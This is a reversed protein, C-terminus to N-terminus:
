PAAIIRPLEDALLRPAFGFDRRIRTTDIRPFLVAPADPIVSVRSATLRAILECVEANTLSIGSAVNYIRERGDLAIRVLLDAVDEVHIYDRATEPSSRLRIEGRRAENLIEALFTHKQRQGYANAVRAVRGRNGLSLTIAEGAAKSANYIDDTDLPNLLFPDDERALGRTRLYLRVSSVYLLSEFRSHRILEVLSSVHADATDLARQRFDGTIGICYIVTGLDRGDLPENRSPAQFEIGARRLRDSM